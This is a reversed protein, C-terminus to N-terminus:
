FQVEVTQDKDLTIQEEGGNVDLIQPVPDIGGQKWLKLRYTKTDTYPVKYTLVLKAQSNPELLFFGEFITLGNEEGVKAAERFGQADVLQSGNPV